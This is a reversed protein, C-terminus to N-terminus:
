PNPQRPVGGRQLESIEANLTRSSPSVSRTNAAPLEAQLLAALAIVASDLAVARQERRMASSAEAANTLQAAIRQLATASPDLRLVDQALQSLMAADSRAADRASTRGALGAVEALMRRLSVTRPNLEAAAVARRNSRAESLDGTLRRSLDLAEREALARLIIRSRSFALELQTVAAKEAALATTLEAVNLLTSARSMSRIARMLAVRGQNELRGALIDEEAEAEAEEGLDDLDGGTHAHEDGLEGGMMFVFEARVKRQEAALEMSAKLVSDAPMKAANAILRETKVVVMAQSVAYREEDPDIAFGAAADSGVAFLEAIYADSEQPASGPRRDTAIARYVVMDGPELKLTDLTWRATARWARTSTRTVVLPVEGEAFSFREGSGSVKTFRLQLSALALDDNSEVAIDLTSNPERLMVDRGPTVIRVRPPEDPTISVGILRQAGSEGGTVLPTFAVYGDAEASLSFVFRDDSVAAIREEGALTTVVLSDARARVDFQLRSGALAQVRSTDRMTERTGGAYSPATVTVEVDDIRAINPSVASRVSQVATRVPSTDRIALLASIGTVTALAILVSRAPFIARLDLSRVTQSANHLVLDAVRPSALMATQAGRSQMLEDATILINRCVPARSEVLPAVREQKVRVYALRLLSGIVACAAAIALHRATSGRSPIGALALLASATLGVTAGEAMAIWSLRLKARTLFARIAETNTVSSM